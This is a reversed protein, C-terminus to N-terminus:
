RPRPFTELDSNKFSSMLSSFTSKTPKCSVLLFVNLSVQNFEIPPLLIKTENEEGGSTLDPPRKTPKLESIKSTLPCSYPSNMILVRIKCLSFFENPFKNIHISGSLIVVFVHEKTFKRGEARSTLEGQQYPSKLMKLSLSSFFLGSPIL